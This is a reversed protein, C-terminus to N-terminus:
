QQQKNHQESVTELYASHSIHRQSHHCLGKLHRVKKALRFVQIILISGADAFM